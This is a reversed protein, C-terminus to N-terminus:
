QQKNALLILKQVRLSNARKTNQAKCPNINMYVFCLLSVLLIVATSLASSEDAGPLLNCIYYLVGRGGGLAGM